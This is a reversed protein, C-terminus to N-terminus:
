LREYGERDFIIALRELAWHQTDDASNDLKIYACNGKLRPRATMQRGPFAFVGTRQLLSQLTAEAGHGVMTTWTVKGSKLGLTALIEHLTGHLVPGGMDIPGFFVYNDFAIGDDTPASYDFRYVYGNRAGLLVGCDMPSDAHYNWACQPDFNANPLEVPWFGKGAWDFWWHKSSGGSSSLFIHVGRHWPDYTMTVQTNSDLNLLEQPLKERSIPAPYITWTSGVIQNATTLAYLGDRSLFIVEGQPGNCWANPGVCGVSHSLNIIQGGLALDGQLMWMSSVCGVILYDDTHTILATIAQTLHTGDTTGGVPRGGDTAAQVPNYYWDLPNGNRSMYFAHPAVPAGALVLRDRFTCCLPCGTPVQGLIAGPTGTITGSADDTGAQLISITSAVPDFVKPAREIRYDCTGTGPTGNLVVGASNHSAITYTGDVCGISNSIIVVDTYHNISYVSWDTIGTGTLTGSTLIGTGGTSYIRPNGNDAVYLKQQREAGQLVRDNTFGVSSSVQAMTNRYSDLYTNGSAIAVMRKRLTQATTKDTYQVRFGGTWAAGDQGVISQTANLAFGMSNGASGGLSVAHTVVAVGCWYVTVTGATPNWLAEFWGTQVTQSVNTFNYSETLSSAVYVKLTGTYAPLGTTADHQLVLEAVFGDRLTSGPTTDNMRGYIQYKGWYRGGWPALWAGLMYPKTTDLPTPAAMILGSPNNLYSLVGSSPLIYPPDTDLWEMPSWASGFSGGSFNDSWQLLGGASITEVSRLLQVPNGSGLQTYFAKTLGPRSGGRAREFFPDLPRVNLCDQTTFPAQKQFAAARNLGGAPWQLEIARRNGSLAAQQQKPV